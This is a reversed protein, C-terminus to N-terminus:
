RAGPPTGRYRELRYGIGRVTVLQDALSPQVALKGRLWRIHVDVTRGDRRLSDAGVAALLQQRTFTHGPHTSLVELLAFERPRLHVPHGGIRLERADLDLVADSSILVRRDPAKRATGEALLALRGVLEDPAITDDFAADFGSRLAALREASDAPRDVLIARMDRRRRREAAVAAIEVTTAPPAFVVVLRPRRRILLRQFLVGDAVVNIGMADLPAIRPQSTRALMLGHLDSTASYTM